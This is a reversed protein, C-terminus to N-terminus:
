HYLWGGIKQLIKCKLDYQMFLAVGGGRRGDKRDARVVKYGPIGVRKNSHWGKCWTESICILHM